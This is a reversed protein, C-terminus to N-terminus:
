PHCKWDPLSARGEWGSLSVQSRGLPNPKVAPSRPTLPLWRQGERNGMVRVEALLNFTFAPGIICRYGNGQESTEAEQLHSPVAPLLDEQWLEQQKHGPACAQLLLLRSFPLTWPCLPSPTGLLLCFRCHLRVPIFGLQLSNGIQQLAGKPQPEEHVGMQPAASNAVM